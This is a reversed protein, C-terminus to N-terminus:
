SLEGNDIPGGVLFDDISVEYGLKKNDDGDKAIKCIGCDFLM